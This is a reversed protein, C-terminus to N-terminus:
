FGFLVGGSVIAAMDGLSHGLGYVFFYRTLSFIVFILLLFLEIMSLSALVPVRGNSCLSM